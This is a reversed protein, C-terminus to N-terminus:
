TQTVLNVWREVQTLMSKTTAILKRLFLVEQPYVRGNRNKKEAQMFVGEVFYSKKGDKEEVIVEANIEENLEKILKMVEEESIELSRKKTMLMLIKRSGIEKEADSKYNKDIYDFFEKKKEDSDFESPDSVGFKKLAKRFFKEYETDEEENVTEVEEVDSRSDFATNALVVVSTSRKLLVVLFIM